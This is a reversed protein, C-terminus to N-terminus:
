YDLKLIACLTHGGRRLSLRASGRSYSCVAKCALADQKDVHLM